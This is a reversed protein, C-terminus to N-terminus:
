QAAGTDDKVFAALKVNVSLLDGAAQPAAQMSDIILFRRSRDLLNAFKVLQAYGGDFNASVTMMALDDSGEIPELPAITAEKMKMGATKATETVEGIITSYTHRRGTMYSALFTDSQSRGEDINTTLLRSRNLRIQDAQLRSSAALLEANIAEPSTGVVHFAFMAAVINALLLIGLGARVLTRTEKFSALTPLPISNLNFSRPM